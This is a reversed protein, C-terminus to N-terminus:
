LEARFTMKTEIDFVRINQNKGLVDSWVAAHHWSSDGAKTLSLLFPNSGHHRHSLLCSEHDVQSRVIALLIGLFAKSEPFEVFVIKLARDFLRSEALFFHLEELTFQIFNLYFIFKARQNKVQSIL